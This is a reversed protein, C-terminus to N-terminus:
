SFAMDASVSSESTLTLRDKYKDDMNFGTIPVRFSNGAGPRDGV